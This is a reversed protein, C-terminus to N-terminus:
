LGNWMKIQLMEALAELADYLSAGKACEADKGEGKLAIFPLDMEKNEYVRIEHEAMWRLRPSLTKEIPFLEETM